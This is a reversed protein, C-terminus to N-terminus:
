PRHRASATAVTVCVALGLWLLVKYAPFFLWSLIVGVLGRSEIASGLVVAYARAEVVQFELLGTARALFYLAGLVAVVFIVHRRM